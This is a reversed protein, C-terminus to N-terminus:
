ELEINKSEKLNLYEFLEELSFKQTIKSMKNGLIKQRKEQSVEMESVEEFAKRIEENEM